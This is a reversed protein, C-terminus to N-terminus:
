MNFVSYSFDKGQINCDVNLLRSITKGLDSFSERDEIKGRRISNGYIVVPVYERSHDTSPTTPDCGHDATIIVLDSDKIKRIFEGLWSDFEELAKKFGWYDNRHGYVMDFDVLNAFILGNKVKNLSDSILMMGEKNDKSHVSRTIGKNAFIDDIKGITYVEKGNQKLCDLLTDKPPPISFDKRNETRSYRNERKVFPRAIVRGVNMDGKLLQRAIRCIEYLKEPPIIEEHAAIQFVSDASTYVIPYGTKVHEDGLKNIIETGSAAYNGLTKTKIKEEFKRIFERPFGDPFTPFPKDLILGCIEWHGTTTDKGPSKEAMRLYLGAPNKTKEVGKINALNGLGIMELTPLKLGGTKLATNVLTNSGTDGYDEADPLEGIGAGDLIILIVRKFVRKIKRM